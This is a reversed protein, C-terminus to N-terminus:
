LPRPEVTSRGPPAGHRHRHGRHGCGWGGGGIALVPWLGWLVWWADSVAAVAVLAAVALMVAARPPRSRSRRPPDARRPERPRAEDEEPLERLTHRLEGLTRAAYAEDLREALEDPTLRGAGAHRTLLATVRERDADSARLGPDGDLRGANTNTNTKTSDNM